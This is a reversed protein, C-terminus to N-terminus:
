GQWGGAVLLDCGNIFSAADSCLFLVAAAVDESTGPRGTPNQRSALALADARSLERDEVVGPSVTNFTVGGHGEEIALTRTLSVVAAKGALHPGINRRGMATAAGTAGLNVVRGWGGRRMWALAQLSAWCTAGATGAWIRDLEEPTHERVPKFAFEGVNNVLIDLRGCAAAATEVLSVVEERRACDAAAALAHVGMGRAQAAVAEAAIRERRYNVVVDCGAAALALVICRGIGRSGGTVLAARGGLRADTTGAM